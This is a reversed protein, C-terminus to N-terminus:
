PRGGRSGVGELSRIERELKLNAETLRGVDKHIQFLRQELALQDKLALATDDKAQGLSKELDNVDEERKAIQKRTSDNEAKLRKLENQKGELEHALFVIRNRQRLYDTEFDARDQITQLKSRQVLERLVAAQQEAEAVYARLGVVVMLRQHSQQGADLNYLLHAIARRRTAYDMEGSKDGVLQDFKGLFEGELEDTSTKSDPAAMKRYKEREEFSQAQALLLARLKNRRAEGELKRIEAKAKERALEVEKKQTLVIPEGASGLDFLNFVDEPLEQYIPEVVRRASDKDDEKGSTVPGTDREDVPLGDLVLQHRFVEYSWERRKAYDISALYIFAGAALVNLFALVKAFLPM